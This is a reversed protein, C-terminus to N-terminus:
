IRQTQVLYCTLQHIKMLNDWLVQSTESGNINTRESALINQAILMVVFADNFDWNDAGEEDQDLNPWKITGEVYSIIRIVQMMIYMSQSWRTWNKLKTDLPEEIKSINSYDSVPIRKITRYTHQVQTRRDPIIMGSGTNTAWPETSVADCPTPLRSAPNATHGTIHTSSSPVANATGHESGFVSNHEPNAQDM